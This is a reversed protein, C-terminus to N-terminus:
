PSGWVNSLAIAAQDTTLNVTSNLTQMYQIFANCNAIRDATTVVKKGAGPPFPKKIEKYGFYQHLKSLPEFIQMKKQHPTDFKDGTKHYFEDALKKRYDQLEKLTGADQDKMPIKLLEDLHQEIVDLSL